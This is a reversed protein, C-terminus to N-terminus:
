TKVKSLYSSFYKLSKIGIGYAEVKAILLDLPLCDFTKPLNMLVAGVKGHRAVYLLIYLSSYRKRFGCINILVLWRIKENSQIYCVWGWCKKDVKQMVSVLLAPFSNTSILKEFVKYKSRKMTAMILEKTIHPPNKPHLVKTKLPAHKDFINAFM